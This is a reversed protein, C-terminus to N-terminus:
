PYCEESEVFGKWDFPIRLLNGSSADVNTRAPLVGNDFLLRVEDESSYASRVIAASLALLSGTSEMRQSVEGLTKMKKISCASRYAVEILWTRHMYASDTNIMIRSLLDGATATVRVAQRGYSFSAWDQNTPKARHTWCLAFYNRTLSGFDITLGTNPDPASVHALPNELSDAWVTANARPLTLVGARRDNDYHQKQFIRYIKKKLPVGFSNRRQYARYMQDDAASVGQHDLRLVEDQAAQFAAERQQIKSKWTRFCM